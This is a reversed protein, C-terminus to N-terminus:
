WVLTLQTRNEDGYMLKGDLQAHFGRFSPSDMENEGQPNEDRSVNYYRLNRRRAKKFVKTQNKQQQKGARKNRFKVKLKRFLLQFSTESFTPCLVIPGVRAPDFLINMCSKVRVVDVPITFYFNWFCPHGRDLIVVVPSGHSLPGGLSCIVSHVALISICWDSSNFFLQDCCLM